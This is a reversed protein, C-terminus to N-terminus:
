IEKGKYLNHKELIVRVGPITMNEEISILRMIRHPAVEPFRIQLEQFRSCVRKHREDRAIESLTRLDLENM